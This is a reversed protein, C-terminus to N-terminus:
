QSHRSIRFEQWLTNRTEFSELIWALWIWLQLPYTLPYSLSSLISQAKINQELCFTLHQNSTKCTRFIKSSLINLSWQPNKSFKILNKSSSFIKEYLHRTDQLYYKIIYFFSFSMPYNWIHRNGHFPCFVLCEWRCSIINVVAVSFAKQSETTSSQITILIIKFILSHNSKLFILSTLYL